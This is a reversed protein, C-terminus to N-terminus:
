ESEMENRLVTSEQQKKMAADLEEVLRAAEDDLAGVDGGTARALKGRAELLRQRLNQVRLRLAAIELARGADAESAPEAGTAGLAAVTAALHAPFDATRRKGRLHEFIARHEPDSLDDPALDVRAAEEPFQVLQAMVFRELASSRETRRALGEAPPAAPAAAPRSPGKPARQAEDRLAEQPVGTQTAIRGLYLERTLADPEEAVLPLVEALFRRRGDPGGFEHRSAVRDIVYELVPKATRIVERLGLPDSRALEDPDGRPLEAVYVSLGTRTSLAGSRTRRVISVLERGRKEAAATGAADADFAVVARDVKLADLVRYQEETLATGQSAVVNDLGAQHCSIADFYGEVIVAESQKRIAPRAIDLAYLTASKSFLITQPSNIYKAPHGGMARGGFAIIRGKGDRTPIMLRDYFRDFLGNETSIVLGSTVAEEDSFGKKRLYALLGGRSNPAYGLGFRDITEPTIGRQALYAAATKGGDTGRLAQRFYFLATDHAALLRKAHENEQRPRSSLEVGAREALSRLADAKDVNEHKMVWDFIDGKEDCGFCHFTRREPDVTFSPTKEAHFPCLGKYTRGAKRLAVRESVLQVIDIRDKVTDFDGPM